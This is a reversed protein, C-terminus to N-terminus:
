KDAPATTALHFEMRKTLTLYGTELLRSVSINSSDVYVVLMNFHKTKFLVLLKIFFIAVKGWSQNTFSILSTVKIIKNRLM